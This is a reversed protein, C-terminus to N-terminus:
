ATSIDIQQRARPYLYLATLTYCPLYSQNIFVANICHTCRFDNETNPVIVGRQRFLPQSKSADGRVGPSYISSVFPM